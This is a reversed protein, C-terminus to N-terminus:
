RSSQAMQDRDATVGNEMIWDEMRLGSVRSFKSLNHTTVTLNGTIEQAAIQIDM